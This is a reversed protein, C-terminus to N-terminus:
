YISLLVQRKNNAQTRGQEAEFLCDLSSSTDKTEKMWRLSYQARPAKARNRNKMEADENSWQYM